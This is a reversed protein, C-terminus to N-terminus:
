TEFLGNKSKAVKFTNLCPILVRKFTVKSCCTVYSDTVDSKIALSHTGVVGLNGQASEVSNRLLTLEQPLVAIKEVHERICNLESHMFAVQLGEQDGSKDKTSKDSALEGPVSTWEDKPGHKQETTSKTLSSSRPQHKFVGAASRSSHM